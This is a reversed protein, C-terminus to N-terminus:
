SCLRRLPESRPRRLVLTRGGPGAGAACLGQRGSLAPARLAQRRLTCARLM